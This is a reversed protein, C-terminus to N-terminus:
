QCVEYTGPGPTIEKSVKFRTSAKVFLPISYSKQLVPSYTGPGLLFCTFIIFYIKLTSIKTIHINNKSKHEECVFKANFM